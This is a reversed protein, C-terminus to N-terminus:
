KLVAKMLWCWETVLNLHYAGAAARARQELQPRHHKAWARAQNFRHQFDDSPTNM